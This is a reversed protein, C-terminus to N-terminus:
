NSVVPLLAKPTEGNASSAVNTARGKKSNKATTLIKSSLDDGAFQFGVM